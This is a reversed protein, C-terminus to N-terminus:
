TNEGNPMSIFAAAYPALVVAGMADVDIEGCNICMLAADESAIRAPDIALPYVQENGSLNLLCYLIQQPAARTFAFVQSHPPLLEFNGCTLAPMDSRWRLLRRWTNLLSTPTRSQRDIAYHTHRAPIPLWPQDADTFGLHPSNARWPMPTRSGDRGVIRPYACKGYPDRLEFEGIDEPIRALPLGLEDGQYLCLAGPLTALLGAAMRYFDDPYPKGREDAGTWRSRFRQYDHNGVMWCHGGDPFHTRVRTVIDRLMTTSLPADVLLASNYAMHLRHNGAVYKGSLGISDEALTLEGLTFTEPFEDMLQRVRPLLELTEPRCFSNVLRQRALPNAPDIGDPPGDIVARAPNDRLEPDHTFFNVADVRFGDVGCELWRRASAMLSDIVRENHWNLEPQSPMFNALYYQRRAEHWCWASHGTFASLWNNPPSGDPRADAWVYWDAYANDRSTASQLFWPHTDATHNWVQDLILKMGQCHVLEVLNSFTQNDGFLPDIEDCDTIAYGADEHKSPFIPNLWIADVGLSRIYDLKDIIGNLDGVGDGDSDSFSLPFVQYIVAHQWWHGPGGSPARDQRAAPTQRWWPSQQLTHPAVFDSM